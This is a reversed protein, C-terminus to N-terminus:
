KVGFTYITQSVYEEGPALVTLPFSPQNPSDPFHETELCLGYRHQYTVGYKGILSGDLFNGSYFQIGPETTHVEMFRGSGPEYVSAAFKLSDAASLVWCHDYGLGVVLQEEAEKIRAGVKQPSRFDFPTAAVDQLKGTPILVKSVPVFKDSQIVLEHDLIDRKTNGTLNFYTHQTLNIITKKDTVAHYDIKLENANTLTYVVTIKLTGPYGEEGDKSNYTLKLSPGVNSQNEEINWFVKDFGVLGGHLHQGNNNKAVNYTVGDIAFKGDAIRNGYRGVIAGFYPNGAVYSSLSDFGLVIDELVGQKDPTKLTTIIGGYNMVKMEIGNKNTLTYLTVLEGSPLQGFPAKTIAAQVVSDQSDAVMEAKPKCSQIMTILIIVLLSFNKM